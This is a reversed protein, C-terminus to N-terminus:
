GKIKYVLVADKERITKYGPLSFGYSVLTLPHGLRKAETELYQVLRKMFPEALFVFVCTTDDPLTYRWFNAYRVSALQRVRRLRWWSIAVLIPNLEVGVSAVGRSAAALLLRGDGSGLDVLKDSKKLQAAVFLKDMDRAHTPVYPAGFFVVGLTLAAVVVVFILWFESM